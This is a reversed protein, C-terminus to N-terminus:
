FILNTVDTATITTQPMSRLTGSWLLLPSAPNDDIVHDITHKEDQMLRWGPQLMFVVDGTHKKSMSTGLLPYHFAEYNPMAVQVGEFDMLFNAVQRQMTELNLRKQEILPRNLYLSQGYAGDVWREHGYLAMLYTGTLAAARDTNFFRVPMHIDALTQADIGLVPRGVVLIQYNARGIRKDLQEMLYGIDQNLWLYMDEQEACSIHDSVASPSLTNLQLMLLDPTADTGLKEAQQMALALQIVLTNAVPSKPLVTNVEYAFGKKLEQPSPATYTQINMRPSWKRAAMTAIQKSKNQEYAASPLGDKYAATAVWKYNKSDIWCCANAAHGALLVTTEPQIGIAYIKSAPYLLRMRDTITQALLANASLRMTTGIGHVSEDELMTQVSRDNKQFFADMTYGHREPTVGTVLTATTENGGYVLHPYTITTQFAEESLTRLGGKQWLPRLTNLNDATMGDVVAVVTLRPAAYLCASLM